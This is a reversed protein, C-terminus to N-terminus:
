DGAEATGATGDVGSSGTNAALVGDNFPRLCEPAISCGTPIDIESIRRRVNATREAERVAIRLRQHWQKEQAELQAKVVRNMEKLYHDEAADYGKLYAWLGVISVLSAVGILAVPLWNVGALLSRLWGM